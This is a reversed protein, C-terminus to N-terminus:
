TWNADLAALRAHEQTEYEGTARGFAERAAAMAAEYKRQSGPVLTKLGTPRAPAVWEPPSGATALPGPDFRPASWREKLSELDIYDDVDLTAHLLSELESLQRELEANLQEAESGRKETYRRMADRDNAAAQRMAERQRREAERRLVRAAREAQVRQRERDRQIDSILGRRRAMVGDKHRSPGLTLGCTPQPGAEDRFTGLVVGHNGLLTGPVFSVMRPDVLERAGHRVAVRVSQDVVELQHEASAPIRLAEWGPM